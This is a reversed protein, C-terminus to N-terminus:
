KDTRHNAANEGPYMEVRDVSPTSGPFSSSREAPPKTNLIDKKKKPPHTTPHNPIKVGKGAAANENEERRNRAENYYAFALSDAGDSSASNGGTPVGYRRM